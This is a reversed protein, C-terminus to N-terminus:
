RHQGRICTPLQLLLGCKCQFLLPPSTPANHILPRPARVRRRAIVRLPPSSAKHTCTPPRYRALRPHRLARPRRYASVRLTSKNDPLSATALRTLTAPRSRAQVSITTQHHRPFDVQAGCCARRQHLSESRESKSLRKRKGNHRHRSTATATATNTTFLSHTDSFTPNQLNYFPLFWM